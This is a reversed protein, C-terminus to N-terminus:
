RLLVVDGKISITKNEKTELNIYYFYTGQECPKGKFTGDWGETANAGFAAYVVQGYRNYIEFNRVFIYGNNSLRFVDNLGDGNPTFANPMLVRPMVAIEISAVGICGEDSLGRITLTTTSDLNVKQWTAFQNPLLEYPTWETVRYSEPATSNITVQEGFNILDKDAFLKLDLEKVTILQRVTDSCGEINTATFYATYQGANYYINQANKENSTQGDGFYWKWIPADTIGTFSAVVGKCLVTDAVLSVDPIPLSLIQFELSTDCGTNNAIHVTYSGVDLGQVTDSPIDSQQRITNGGNDKWTYSFLTNDGAIPVCWARGQMKGLCSYATISLVPLKIFSVKYTDIAYKCDRNIYRVIYTGATTVDISQQTSGNDWLYNKGSEATITGTDKFCIHLKHFTSVTDPPTFLAIDNPLGRRSWKGAPLPIANATFGCALGANNPFDIRHMAPANSANPKGSGLYIRGDTGRKLDGINDNVMAWDTYITTNSAIIATTTALSLDYQRVKGYYYIGNRAFSSTSAYLKNNDPSFCAGYFYGHTSSSDLIVNNSLIGTTPDFDYLELGGSLASADGSAAAMKTGDPSFKIVGCRYWSVPLSGINSIVPTTVMGTDNVEFAKYENAIKSRVMVWLNNCGKVVTLKETLGTVLGIGKKGAVIGGMGNNLSMDIMSYFLQGNYALSFIYYKGPQAPVNTIAVPQTAWSGLNPMMPPYATPYIPTIYGPNGGTLEPMIEHNQNWVWGGNTYFLLQGSADCISATGEYGQTLNNGIPTVTAPNFDLGAKDGFIWVNQEGQAYSYLSLLLAILLAILSKKM